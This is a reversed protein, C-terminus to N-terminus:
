ATKFKAALISLNQALSKLGHAAQDTQRTVAVMAETGQFVHEVQEAIERAAMAQEELLLFAIGIPLRSPWLRRLKRRRAPRHSILIGHIVNEHDGVVAGDSAGPHWVIVITDDLVSVHDDLRNVEIVM